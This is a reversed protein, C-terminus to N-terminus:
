NPFYKITYKSVMLENKGIVYNICCKATQINKSQKKICGTVTVLYNKHLTKHANLLVYQIINNCPFLTAITTKCKIKAM